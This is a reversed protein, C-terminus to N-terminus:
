FLGFSHCIQYGSVIIGVISFAKCIINNRAIGIVSCVMGLCAVLPFKGLYVEYVMYSCLSLLLGIFGLSFLTRFFRLVLFLVLILIGIGIVIGLGGFSGLIGAM